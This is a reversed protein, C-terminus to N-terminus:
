GLAAQADLAVVYKRGRLYAHLHAALERADEGAGDILTSKRRRMFPLGMAYLGPAVVGGEHRLRGKADLVPVHLWSYDAKFGTAWIITRIEGRTLDLTLPPKADTRTPELRAGPVIERTPLQSAAWDDITDLLRNLKLDALACVNKLSGSFQAKGESVGMLRGALRVGIASLANLDLTRRDAYGALQLSAVNRARPLDEIQDYRQGLIGAADMWWLIDKGRYVRPVRVHEGAALIVPLGVRQIEDAIQVGSASAGVVLVGGYELLSPNRYQFPTITNIWSPVSSACQPLSPVSSAGTALVVANCTWTGRDTVVVYGGGHARVSQVATHTLVPACITKAYRDILEITEAMSRYGDPDVNEQAFGPLRSQWNPTLLRLSDWRQTRWANAIEGRELVVHNISREALCLSMALGAHGAGIIVATTRRSAGENM